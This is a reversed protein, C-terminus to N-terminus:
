EFASLASKAQTLLDAGEGFYLPSFDFTLASATTWDSDKWKYPGIRPYSPGSLSNYTNFGTTDFALAFDGGQLARWVRTRPQHATTYGPRYHVIFRTWTGAAPMPEKGFTLVKETDPNTGGVYKWTNSPKTNYAVEWRMSTDQGRFCLSIDPTTAGQAPTHTQFVLMDDDKGSARPVGESGTPIRVSFAMWYDRGPVLQQGTWAREARVGGVILAGSKTIRTSTIGNAATSISAGSSLIQTGAGAIQALAAAPPPTVVPPQEVITWSFSKVPKSTDAAVSSGAFYDVKHAGLKLPTSAGLVFPKPCIIPAYTDLRCWITGAPTAAFSIAATRATTSESPLGSLEVAPTVPKTTFVTDCKLDGGVKVAAQACDALSNFPSLNYTTQAFSASALLAGCLLGFLKNM